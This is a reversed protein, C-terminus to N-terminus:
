FVFFQIPIFNFHVNQSETTAHQRQKYEQPVGTKRERNKVQPINQNPHTLHTIISCVSIIDKCFSFFLFFSSPPPFSLLIAIKNSNYRHFVYFKNEKYEYFNLYSFLCVLLISCSVVLISHFFRLSRKLAYPSSFLICVLNFWLVQYHSSYWPISCWCNEAWASLHICLFSFLRSMSPAPWPSSKPFTSNSIGVFSSRLSALNTTAM